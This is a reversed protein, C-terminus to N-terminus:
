ERHEDYQFLVILTYGLEQGYCWAADEHQAVSETLLYPYVCFQRELTKDFPQQCVLAYSAYYFSVIYAYCNILSFIFRFDKSRNAMVDMTIIVM